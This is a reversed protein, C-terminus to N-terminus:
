VNTKIRSTLALPLRKIKIAEDLAWIVNGYKVGNYDNFHPVSEYNLPLLVMDFLYSLTERYVYPIKEPNTRIMAGTLDWCVAWDDNPDTRKGMANRAKQFRTWKTEENLLSRAAVLNELIIDYAM